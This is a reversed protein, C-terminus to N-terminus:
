EGGELRAKYANAEGERLGRWYDKDSNKAYELNVEKWTTREAYKCVRDVVWYMTLCIMVVIAFRMENDKM